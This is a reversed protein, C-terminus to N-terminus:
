KLSTPSARYSRETAVRMTVRETAPILLFARLNGDANTGTGVIWGRDNIGTPELHRWGRAAVENLADLRVFTGNDILYGYRGEVSGVVQGRDNIAVATSYGPAPLAMMAREYQFSLAQGNADTALGVVDGHDNIGRAGSGNGGLTGLDRIAGDLYVVAHGGATGVITGGSNIASASEGPLSIVSGNSYKFARTAAGQTYSGVVVGANNIGGVNGQIGLRTVTSGKWTVLDGSASRGAVVGHDNVALACSHGTASDTATGLDHMVGDRYVFAHASTFDVDACGVVLGSNSVAAAYSGAGGLTGLDILSWGRPERAGAPLSGFVMCAAAAVLGTVIRSSGM